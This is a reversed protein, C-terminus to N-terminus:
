QRTFHGMPATPPPAPFDPVPYGVSDVAKRIASLDVRTPDVCIVAKETALLVNVSEVGPVSAIAHQVHQACEACDMGKVPVELLQTKDM